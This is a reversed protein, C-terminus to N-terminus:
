RQIGRMWRGLVIGLWTSVSAFVVALALGSGLALGQQPEVFRRLVDFSTSPMNYQFYGTGFFRNAAAPTMLFSAFPWEAAVLPLVFVPGTVLAVLWPKWRETRQWLLDLLIAPVILLIPFKPPIMQTVQQFVPGLKPEAPFLPLILVAGELFVTYIV